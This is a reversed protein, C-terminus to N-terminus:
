RFRWRFRKPPPHNESCPSCRSNIVATRLGCAVCILRECGSCSRTGKRLIKGCTDCTFEDPRVAMELVGKVAHLAEGCVSCRAQEKPNVASCFLCQTFNESDIIQAPAAVDATARVCVITLDDKPPAGAQFDDIQAVLTRVGEELKAAGLTRIWDCLRRIGFLEDRPNQAEVLGDTYLVFLDGKQMILKQQRVTKEFLPGKDIGLALGNPNVVVLERRDTEWFLMPNHGASACHLTGTPLDLLVYFCTVFMGRPLDKALLRNVRILTDKPAVHRTAEARLLTRVQAMVMAAPVGHGSVDAVVLALYQDDIEIFDYLDGSVFQCPRYWPAFEFGHVRPIQRPLLSTQIRAAVELEHQYVSPDPAPTPTPKLRQELHRIILEQSEAREDDPPPPFGM